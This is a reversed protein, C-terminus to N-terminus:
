PHANQTIEMNTLLPLKCQAEIFAMLEQHAEVEVFLMNGNVIKTILQSITEAMTADFIM